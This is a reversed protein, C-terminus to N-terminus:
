VWAGVVLVLTMKLISLIERAASVAAAATSNAADGEYYNEKDAVVADEPKVANVADAQDDDQKEEVVMPEPAETPDDDDDDYGADDVLGDDFCGDYECLGDCCYRPRTLFLCDSDSTCHKADVTGPSGAVDKALSVLTIFLAIALLHLFARM